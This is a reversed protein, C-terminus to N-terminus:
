KFFNNILIKSKNYEMLNRANAVTLQSNLSEVLAILLQETSLIGAKYQNLSKQYNSNKLAAIQKAIDLSNLSKEYEKELSNNTLENHIQQHGIDLSAIRYQIKAGYSQSLKNIDPPFSFSIRLGLYRAQIWEAKADSFGINSNKQWGQYYGISLVPFMSLRQVRLENKSFQSQLAKYKVELGSYTHLGSVSEKPREIISIQTEPSIDCLIKLNNIQQELSTKLQQQKDKILLASVTSNNLDQERVIGELYKNGVIIQVSDSSRVSNGTVTIQEQLMVINYYAAAISEYLAKKVMSSNVETMEKNLEASKVKAWNGPHIIDIQPNFNFNSVYQQGLTIQRFTGAPGGFFDAPIFNVPLLMNDTASLSVPNRFNISNAQAAIKTWKALLNQQSSIKVASSNKDAFRFLSDLDNFSLQAQLNLCYFFLLSSTIQIRLSQKV